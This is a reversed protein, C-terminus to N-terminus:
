ANSQGEYRSVARSVTAYHVGFVKAIAKMAHGAELYALAMVTNRDKTELDHLYEALSRAQRHQARPIEDLARDITLSDKMNQVFADGGLYIQGQLSEWITPLGVGAHVFDAYALRASSLASAFQSLLWDVQLWSPRPQTGTTAHYSSWPWDQVTQVMHARVPNLVVYRSLELLYSDKEVLIAKYRGQYVHGVRGHTRNFRQTYVGNLQRMGEALNPEPTEIVVHYHNSM